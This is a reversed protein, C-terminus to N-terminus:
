NSMKRRAVLSALVILVITAAFIFALEKLLGSAGYSGIFYQKLPELIRGNPTFDAMPALWEPM